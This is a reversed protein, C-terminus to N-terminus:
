DARHPRAQDPSVAFAFVSGSVPKGLWPAKWSARSVMLLVRLSASAMAPQEHVKVIEFAEDVGVPM